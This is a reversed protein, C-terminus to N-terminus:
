THAIFTTIRWKIDRATQNAKVTKFDFRVTKTIFNLFACNQSDLDIINVSRNWRLYRISQINCNIVLVAIHYNDITGILLLLIYHTEM